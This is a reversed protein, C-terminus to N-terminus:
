NPNGSLNTSVGIRGTVNQKSSKRERAADIVTLPGKRNLLELLRFEGFTLDFSDLPPRLESKLWEATDILDLCGQMARRTKERHTAYHRM